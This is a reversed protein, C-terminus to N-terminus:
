RSYLRGSVGQGEVWVQISIDLFTDPETISFLIGTIDEQWEKLASQTGTFGTLRIILRKNHIIAESKKYQNIFTVPMQNEVVTLLYGTLSEGARRGRIRLVEKIVPHSAGPQTGEEYLQQESVIAQIRGMQTQSVGQVRQTPNLFLLTLPVLLYVRKIPKM